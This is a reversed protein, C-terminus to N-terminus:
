FIRAHAGVGEAEDRNLRSREEIEALTYGINDGPHLRRTPKEARGAGRFGYTRCMIVGYTVVDLEDKFATDPFYRYQTEFEGAQLDPHHYVRKMRYLPRLTELIRSDKDRQSTTRMEEIPIYVERERVEKQLHQLLIHGGASWVEVGARYPQYVHAVRFFDEILEDETKYDSRVFLVHLDDTPGVGVVALAPRSTGQGSAGDLVLYTTVEDLKPSAYQLDDLTFGDRGEESTALLYQLEFFRIDHKLQQKKKEYRADDWEFPNAYKGTDRYQTRNDEDLWARGRVPQLLVRLAHPSFEDIVYSWLDYDKYRTGICLLDDTDLTPWLSTFKKKLREQESRSGQNEDNVWDDVTYAFVHRGTTAQRTTRMSFTPGIAEPKRNALRLTGEAPKWPQGPEVEPYLWRYVENGEITNALVGLQSLGLDPDDMWHIHDYDAPNATAGQLPRAISGITSKFAERHALVLRPSKPEPSLERCLAGHWCNPPALLDYPLVFMSFFHLNVKGFEVYIEREEPSVLDWPASASADYRRAVLRGVDLDLGELASGSLSGRLAKNYHAISEEVNKRM